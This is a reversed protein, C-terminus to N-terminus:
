LSYFDNKKIAFASNNFCDNALRNGQILNDINPNIIKFFKNLKDNSNIKSAFNNDNSKSKKYNSYIKTLDYKTNNYIKILDYKINNFNEMKNLLKSVRLIRTNSTPEFRYDLIKIQQNKSIIYISSGKSWIIM